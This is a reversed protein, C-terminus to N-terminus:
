VRKRRINGSTWGVGNDSPNRAVTAHNRSARQRSGLLLRRRVGFPAVRGRVVTPPDHEQGAM